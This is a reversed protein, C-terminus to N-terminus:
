IPMLPTGGRADEGSISLDFILRNQGRRLPPPVLRARHAARTSSTAIRFAQEHAATWRFGFADRVQPPLTGKIKLSTLLLHARGGAPVPQHFALIPATQRAHDTLELNEAALKEDFWARFERYTEPAVSRPLGFLEGFFLYEQWLDEREIDSLPRILAEYMARGSDAIVAMTWLMLEPDFASYHTGAPHSGVALPLDGRVREHLRRVQALVADAEECTGFWVVEHAKATRALRRFPRDGARTSVMTATYTLPDLAGLIISRGGYLLGVVREENIRRLISRGPPFYYESSDTGRHGKRRNRKDFM